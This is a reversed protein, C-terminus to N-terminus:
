GCSSFRFGLISLLPRRLESECCGNIILDEVLIKEPLVGEEEDKGEGHGGKSAGEYRVCGWFRRGPNEKTRSVRLVVVEGHHCLLMRQTNRSGTSRSATSRGWSDSGTAM